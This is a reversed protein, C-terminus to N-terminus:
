TDTGNNTTGDVILSSNIIAELRALREELDNIKHKQEMIFKHLQQPASVNLTHIYNKDIINFDDVTKGNIFIDSGEIDKDVIMYNDYKKITTYNFEVKELVICHFVDGVNFSEECDHINIHIM